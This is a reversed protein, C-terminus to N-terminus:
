LYYIYIYIYLSEKKEGSNELQTKKGKELTTTPIPPMLPPLARAEEELLGIAM